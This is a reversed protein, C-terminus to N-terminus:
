QKKGSNELYGENDDPMTLYGGEKLNELKVKSPNALKPSYETEQRDDIWILWSPKPYYSNNTWIKSTKVVEQYRLKIFTVM